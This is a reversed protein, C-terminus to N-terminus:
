TNTLLWHPYAIEQITLHSQNDSDVRPCFGTWGIEQKVNLFDIKGSGPTVETDSSHCLTIIQSYGEEWLWKNGKTIYHM